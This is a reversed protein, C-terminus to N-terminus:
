EKNIAVAMLTVDDNRMRGQERLEDIWAAFSEEPRASALVSKLADCPEEKDEHARLFWQALADTMLYFRDGPLLSGRARRPTPPSSDRSGILCPDNGFDSASKLPFTRVPRNRRVHVLCADGVAVARWAGPRARTRPQFILGLLTAFAGEQRKMDAYWPLDLEMVESSWREQADHLWNALEPPRPAAVFGNALLKAWLSAFASESAGDAVAFRGPASDGAWADECEDSTHGSKPVSLARWQLPGDTAHM